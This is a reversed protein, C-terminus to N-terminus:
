HQLDVDGVDVVGTGPGFTFAAASYGVYDIGPEPFDIGGGEVFLVVVLHFDGSLQPPQGWFLEYPTDPGIDPSQFGPGHVDPPGDPPVADFFDFQIKVPAADFSSPVHVVAKITDPFTETDGGDPDPGGDTDSDTDTDTDTGEDELAVLDVVRDDCGASVWWLTATAVLLAGKM